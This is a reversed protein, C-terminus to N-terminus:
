SQAIPPRRLGELYPACFSFRYETSPLSLNQVFGNETLRSLGCHGLHCHFCDVCLKNSDSSESSSQDIDQANMIVSIASNKQIGAIDSHITKLCYDFTVVFLLFFTLFYKMFIENRM